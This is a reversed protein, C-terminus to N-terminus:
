AIDCHESCMTALQFYLLQKRLPVHQEVREARGSVVWGLMCWCQKVPGCHLGAAWPM